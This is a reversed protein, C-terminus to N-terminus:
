FSVSAYAGLLIMTLDYSGNGVDDVSDVIDRTIIKQFRADGILKVNKTIPTWAGAGVVARHGDFAAVDLNADPSAPSRYGLSGYVGLKDSVTFRGGLDVGITDKWHRPIAIKVTDGLGIQPQALDPSKATVDLSKVESWTTYAAAGYISLQESVDYHAGLMITKPFRVTVTADGTVLSKFALGQSALDGTFFDDNMDLSFRGNFNMKTSHQYTLGLRLKRTPRVMVGASLAYAHGIADKVHIPRSMVSLERVAPPANPGFENSQQIPPNNLARGVDPLAAFDQVRRIDAYGLTYAGGVGVSVVDNFRYTITPNVNVTALTVSQLQWKQPGDDGFSLIAAYPAYVGFGAWLHKKSDLPMAGFIAPVIAIPNAVSKPAQGTKSADISEPPIPTAFRLSDEKQYSAYRTRTYRADGVVFHGGLMVSPEDLFGLAGPNWYVATADLHTPSSQGTGIIPATLGQARADRAALTAGM